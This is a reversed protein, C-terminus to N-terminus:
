HITGVAHEYRMVAILREIQRWRCFHIHNGLDRSRAARLAAEAGAEEGFSSLLDAAAAVEASNALYPFTLMAPGRVFDTGSQGSRRVRGTANTFRGEGSRGSHGSGARQRGAVPRAVVIPM